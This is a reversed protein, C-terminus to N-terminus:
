RSRAKSRLWVRTREFRSLGARMARDSELPDIHSRLHAALANLAQLERTAAFDDSRNHLRVLLGARAQDLMLQADAGHEAVVDATVKEHPAVLIRQAMGHIM